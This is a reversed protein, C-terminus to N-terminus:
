QGALWVAMYLIFGATGLFQAANTAEGKIWARVGFFISLWLLGGQLLAIWYSVM